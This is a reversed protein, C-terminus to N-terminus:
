QGKGLKKVKTKLGLYNQKSVVKKGTKQELEKRANGAVNGGEKAVKKNEKIGTPKRTKVIASTSAGQGQSISRNSSAERCGQGFVGNWIHSHICGLYVGQHACFKATM